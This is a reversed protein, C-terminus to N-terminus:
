GDEGVFLPEPDVPGRGQRVEIYLTESNGAGDSEPPMVYEEVGAERGGLLGLLDGRRVTDGNAVQLRSLGALVLM